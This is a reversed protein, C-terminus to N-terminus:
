APALEGAPLDDVDDDDVSIGLAAALRYREREREHSRAELMEGLNVQRFLVCQHCILLTREYPPEAAGGLSGDEGAFVKAHGDATLGTDKSVSAAALRVVYFLPAVPGGCGDCRRLESLKM